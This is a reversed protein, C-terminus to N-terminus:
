DSLAVPLTTASPGVFYFDFMTSAPAPEINFEAVTSGGASMVTPFAAAPYVISSTGVVLLMNCKSIVPELRKITESEVLEGYWVIYPRLLAGCKKCHPLDKEPIDSYLQTSTESGKGQLAPCIPSDTNVLVENCKTCRTKFLTGHLEIVNKAGARSHLGDINQTVVTVKKDAAHRQAYKAIAIHGANPQAKLAMERRHHYFEWVLGPDERFTGPNNLISSPLTRWLDGQDRYTPIGSEASIGAGSLVVVEKASQLLEKFKSMDNSFERRSIKSAVIHIHLLLRVGNYM